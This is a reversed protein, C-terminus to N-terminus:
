LPFLISRARRVLVILETARGKYCASPSFAHCDISLWESGFGGETELHPHFRQVSRRRRQSRYLGAEVVKIAPLAPLPHTLIDFGSRGLAFDFFIQVYTTIVETARTGSATGEVKLRWKM